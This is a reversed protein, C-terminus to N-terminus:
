PLREETLRRLAAEREHVVAEAEVLRARNAASRDAHYTREAARATLLAAEAAQRAEELTRMWAQSERPADHM